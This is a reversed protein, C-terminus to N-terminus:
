FLTLDNDTFPNYTNQKKVKVKLDIFYNHRAYGFKPSTAFNFMGTLLDCYGNYTRASMRDDNAIEGKMSM